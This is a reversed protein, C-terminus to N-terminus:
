RQVSIFANSQTSVGGITAVVAVDGNPADAPVAVNIQYLGTASLGAFSPTVTTSGIRVSVSETLNAPATLLQGNVIAPSTPGFGSGFLLVTEGPRAPTSVGPFLSAPGLISFDAHRSAIYKDSNFLFFAPTRTQIQTTAADSASGNFTVQVNVSGTATEVPALANIQVPSIYYVFADKNNIKVSTGDLTTPLLNGNFDKGEWVRTNTALGSGKIVVWGNASIGPQFDGDHTIQSIIPKAPAAAPTLTLTTTYIRDGSELSNGNAANGAAYLIINGVDSEPPTWNFHYTGGAGPATLVNGELTHEIFQLVPDATCRVEFLNAAACVLQTTRDLPALVGARTRSDSGRRATLQFGWRRQPESDSITVSVRQTVGPIYSTGETNIRVSGPGANLGTGVHCGVENCTSEGPVGSKGPIPGSDNAFILIPIVSLITLATGITIRRQMHM